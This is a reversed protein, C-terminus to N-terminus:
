PRLYFGLAKDLVENKDFETGIYDSDVHRVVVTKEVMTEKKDDLRFSIKVKQDNVFPHRVIGRTVPSFGIGGQSVNKIIVNGTGTYPATLSYTGILKTSKRYYKRYDLVVQFVHSCTCRVKISHPKNKLKGAPIPRTMNCKPCTIPVGSNGSVVFARVQDM